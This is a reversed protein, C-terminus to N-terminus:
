EASGPSQSRKRDAAKPKSRIIKAFVREFVEPDDSMGIERATELFREFQPKEDPSPPKKTPM